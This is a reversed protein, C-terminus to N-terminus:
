YKLESILRAGYEDDEREESLDTTGIKYYLDTTCILAILLATQIQDNRRPESAKRWKKPRTYSQRICDTDLM